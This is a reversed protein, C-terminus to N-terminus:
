YSSQFHKKLFFFIVKTSLGLLFFSIASKWHSWKILELMHLLQFIPEFIYSFIVAVLLAGVIFTKWTKAYQYLLMYLVPIVAVDASLLTPIDKYLDYPYNWLHYTIGALDFLSALLAWFLGYSLIEFFRTNDVIKWWLIWPLFLSLLLFWWRPDSVTSNMIFISHLIISYVKEM